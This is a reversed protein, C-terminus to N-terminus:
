ECARAKRASVIPSSGVSGGSGASGGLESGADGGKGGASGAVGSIAFLSDTISNGNLGNRGNGPSTPTAGGAHGGIGGPRPNAGAVSGKLTANALANGSSGGTGEAGNVHDEANPASEATANGGNTGASGNNGSFAITGQLDITNKVCIIYGAATLTIGSLITLNDYFKNASLTTAGSITVDGDSGDGTFINLQLNSFNFESERLIASVFQGGYILPNWLENEQHKDLIDKFVTDEIDKHQEYERIKKPM